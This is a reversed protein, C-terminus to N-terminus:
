TRTRTRAPTPYATIYAVLGPPDRLERLLVNDSDADLLALAARRAARQEAGTSYEGTSLLAARNDPPLTRARKPTLIRRAGRPDVNRDPQNRGRVEEQVPEPVRSLADVNRNRSVGGGRRWATRAACLAHLVLNM